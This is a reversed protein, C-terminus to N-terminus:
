CKFITKYNLVAGHHGVNLNTFKSLFIVICWAALVLYGKKIYANYGLHFCSTAVHHAMQDQFPLELNSSM